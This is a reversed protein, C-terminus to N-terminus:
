RDLSRFWLTNLKQAIGCTHLPTHFSHPAQAPYLVVETKSQQTEEPDHNRLFTVRTNIVVYRLLLGHTVVYEKCRM